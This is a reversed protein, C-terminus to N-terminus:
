GGFHNAVVWIILLRRLLIAVIAAVIGYQLGGLINDTFDSDEQRVLPRQGQPVEVVRVPAVARVPPAAAAVPVAVSSDSGTNTAARSGTSQDAAVASGTGAATSSPTPQTNNMGSSTNTTTNTRIAAVNGVAISADMATSSSSTTATHPHSINGGDGGRQARELAREALVQRRVARLSPPTPPIDMAVGDNSVTNVGLVSDKDSDNNPFSTTVTPTTTTTSTINTTPSSLSLSPTTTSAAIASMPFSPSTPYTASGADHRDDIVVPPPITTASMTTLGIHNNNETEQKLSSSRSSIASAAADVSTHNTAQSQEEKLGVTSDSSGATTKTSGSVDEGGAKGNVEQKSPTTGVEAGGKGSDVGSGGGAKMSSAASAAGGAAMKLQSIQAAIESDPQDTGDAAEASFCDPPTLHTLTHDLNHSFAILSLLLFNSSSSKLSPIDSSPMPVYRLELTPHHYPLSTCVQTIRASIWLHPLQILTVATDIISGFWIMATHLHHLLTHSHSSYYM